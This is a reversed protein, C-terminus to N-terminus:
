SLGAPQSGDKFTSYLLLIGCAAWIVAPALLEVAVQLAGSGWECTSTTESELWAKCVLTEFLM